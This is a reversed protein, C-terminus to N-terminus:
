AKSAFLAALYTYLSLFSSSLPLSSSSSHSLATFLFSIPFAM